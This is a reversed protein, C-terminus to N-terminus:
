RTVAFIRSEGVQPKEAHWEDRTAGQHPPCVDHQVESEVAGDTTVKKWSIIIFESDIAIFRAVSSPKGFRMRWGICVVSWAEHLAIRGGKNAQPYAQPNGDRDNDNKANEGVNSTAFIVFDPSPPIVTSKFASLFLVLLWFLLM